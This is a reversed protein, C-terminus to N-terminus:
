LGNRKLHNPKLKKRKLNKIIKKLPNSVLDKELQNKLAERKRQLNESKKLVKLFNEILNLKIKIKM